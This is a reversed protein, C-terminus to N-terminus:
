ADANPDDVPDAAGGGSRNPTSPSPRSPPSTAKPQLGLEVLLRQEAAYQRLEAEWDLGMRAFERAYTTTRNELRTGQADAEKQPDVHERGDWFWQRSADFGDPVLDTALKAEALWAEFLRDLIRREIESQDVGLTKHYVQHDLRGSSYNYSSSDGAAVNYPLNLCRAIERIIESKFDKYTTTPHEAKLQNMSWGAPLTTMMGRVIELTEFPDGDYGDADPGLTSQLVAAFSAATEAAAITALTYRRLYAFLPLAPTIDPVGRCQGPRDVRFWHVVLRAPITEYSSARASLDGPHASLLHYAVPNGYRDFQIGDVAFPDDFRLAPTAVQDAEVLRLDLKVDTPLSPNTTLLAFAEGDVARAKRMVRLKDALSVADAWEGFAREVDRAAADDALLQLRPGTGVTDNALTEVIGKAYSNNATEYRARVRLRHRVDPSNAARASLADAEAWHRANEPTTRAADYRARLMGAGPRVPTRLPKGDPGLISNAPLAM